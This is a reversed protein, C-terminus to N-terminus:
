RSVGVQAKLARIREYSANIRDQSVRGSVVGRRVIDVVKIVIDPDYTLNNGFLLVDAGADLARLVTTELDYLSSIAAMQLDDTFVVGRFALRERLIGTIVNTSLTAPFETDLNANYVHATMVGDVAGDRIMRGYPLLERDSWTNTVDVFGAHTDATASGHGPFHKLVTLVGRARHASVVVEAHRVVVDPDASFSRKYAGIAPSSSNVNLDVVPAFNVNIGASVLTAAISDAAARTAAVDDQTGLDQASVTPPFGQAEKLRAVKGGEQDVAVLLVGDVSTARLSAVLARLQEPSEVNRATKLTTDRDFLIVGGLHHERIDRVIPSTDEVTFGRFGVLLM